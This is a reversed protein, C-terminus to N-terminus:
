CVRQKGLSDYKIGGGVEVLDEWFYVALISFMCVFHGTFQVNVINM